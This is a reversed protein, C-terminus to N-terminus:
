CGLDHLAVEIDSLASSCTLNLTNKDPEKLWSAQMEDLQMQMSATGELGSKDMIDICQSVAEIYDNCADPFDAPNFEEVVKHAAKATDAEFEFSETALPPASAAMVTPQMMEVSAADAKHESDANDAVASATSVTVQQLQENSLGEGCASLLFICALATVNFVSVPHSSIKM